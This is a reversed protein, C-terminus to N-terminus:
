VHARGIEIGDRVQILERRLGDYTKNVSSNIEIMSETIEPKVEGPLDKKNLRPLLDAAGRTLNYDHTNLVMLELEVGFTLPASSKFPLETAPM